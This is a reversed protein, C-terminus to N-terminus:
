VADCDGADTDERNEEIEIDRPNYNLSNSVGNCTCSRRCSCVLRDPWLRSWDRSAQVATEM